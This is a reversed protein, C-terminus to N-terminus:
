ESDGKPMEDMLNIIIDIFKNKLNKELADYAVSLIEYKQAYNFKSFKILQRKPIKKVFEEAFLDILSKPNDMKNM